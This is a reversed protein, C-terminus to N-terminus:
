PAEQLNKKAAAKVRERRQAKFVLEMSATNAAVQRALEAEVQEYNLSPAPHAEPRHSLRTISTVM